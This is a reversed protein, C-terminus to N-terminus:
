HQSRRQSRRLMMHMHCFLNVDFPQSFDVIEKRSESITLTSAVMDLQFDNLQEIAAEQKEFYDEVSSLGNVLEFRFLLFSCISQFYGSDYGWCEYMYICNFICENWIPRNCFTKDTEDTEETM